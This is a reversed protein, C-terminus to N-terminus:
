EKIQSFLKSIREVCFISKKRNFYENQQGKSEAAGPLWVDSARKKSHGQM